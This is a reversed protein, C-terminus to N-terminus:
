REIDLVGSDKGCGWLEKGDIKDGWRIGGMGVWGM